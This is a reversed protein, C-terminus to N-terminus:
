HHRQPEHRDRLPIRAPGLLLASLAGRLRPYYDPRFENDNQNFDSIFDNNEDWGPFVYRDGPAWGKRRWDPEKDQDDNDDVFEYLAYHNGYDLTGEKEATIMSTQYTPDVSFAEAFFFFPYPTSSLNAFYALAEDGTAHHQKRNPNPFQRYRSNIDIEAYGAFGGLDTLEFTFGAIQNATPLGYDFALM